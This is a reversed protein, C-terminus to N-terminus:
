ADKQEGEIAFQLQNLEERLKVDKILKTLGKLRRNYQTVISRQIKRAYLEAEKYDEENFRKYTNKKVCIFIIGQKSLLSIANRVAREHVKYENVIDQKNIVPMSRLIGMLEQLKTM